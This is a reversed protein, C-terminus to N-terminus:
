EGQTRGQLEAVEKELDRIKSVLEPLRRMLAERKMFARGEEAVLGAITRGPPVDRMVGSKAAVKVGMGIKVHGTVGVNGGLVVFDELKASGAIGTLAAIACNKGIDCNHAIQVHNDIKSGDGIRTVGFRARDICTSSGIEVDDGIEVRGRQPTKEFRGNNFHFGFGDSGIVAGSWIITRCGVSCDRLVTANPHIVTEDGVTVNDGLYVRPHIIVNRGLKVNAGFASFAGVYTGEGAEFGEGTDAKDSIGAAPRAPPPLFSDVVKSFALDPDPHRLVTRQGPLELGPPAIVVGCASTELMKVYKVSTVFCIDTATARGLEAVGTVELENDGEVQAGCIAAIESLKM